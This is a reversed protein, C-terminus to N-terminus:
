KMQSLIPIFRDVKPPATVYNTDDDSTYEALNMDQILDNANLM